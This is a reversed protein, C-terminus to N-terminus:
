IQISSKRMCRLLISPNVCFINSLRIPTRVPQNTKQRECVVIASSYIKNCDLKVWEQQHHHRSFSLGVCFLESNSLSENKPRFYIDKNNNINEIGLLIRINNHTMIPSFDEKEDVLKYIHNSSTM